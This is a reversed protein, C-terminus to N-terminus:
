ARRRARADWVSLAFLGAVALASVVCYRCIANIRAVELWTLYASFLVGWGNLALLATTPWQREQGAGVSGAVAVAAVSAYYGVGWAAVPWGLFMAYKSAQVKECGGTGCAISGVYGYHYLTLYGALFVGALALVAIAQRQM